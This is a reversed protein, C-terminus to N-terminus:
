SIVAKGHLESFNLKLKEEKRRPFKKNAYNTRVNPNHLQPIDITTRSSLSPRGLSNDTTDM